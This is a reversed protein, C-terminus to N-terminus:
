IHDDKKESISKEKKSERAPATHVIIEDRYAHLYEPFPHFWHPFMLAKPYRRKPNPWVNSILAILVGGIILAVFPMLLLWANRWSGVVKYFLLSSLFLLLAVLAASLVGGITGMLNAPSLDDTKQIGLPMGIIDGLLEMEGKNGVTLVRIVAGDQYDLYDFKIEVHAEDDSFVPCDLHINNGTKNTSILAIDLARVGKISLRFPNNEAVDASRIPEKGLNAFRLFRVNVSAIKEEPHGTVQYLISLKYGEEPSYAKALATSDSAEYALLKMRRNKINSYIAYIFSSVGIIGFILYVIDLANMTAGRNVFKYTIYDENGLFM